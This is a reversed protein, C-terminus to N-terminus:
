WKGDNCGGDPESSDNCTREVAGGDSKEVTFTNGTQSKATITYSAANAETVEVQGPNGGLEATSDPPEKCSSYDQADVFCAEVETSLQAAQTKAESDQKAAEASPASPTKPDETDTEDEGCGAILAAALLAAFATRKM